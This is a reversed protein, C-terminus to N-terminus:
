REDSIQCVWAKSALQPTSRPELLRVCHPHVLLVDGIMLSRVTRSRCVLRSYIQRSSRALLFKQIQIELWQARLFQESRGVIWVRVSNELISRVADVLGTDSSQTNMTVELPSRYQCMASSTLSPKRSAASVPLLIGGRKPHRLYPM